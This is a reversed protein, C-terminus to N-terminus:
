VGFGMSGEECFRMGTGSGEVFRMRGEEGFRKGSEGFGM